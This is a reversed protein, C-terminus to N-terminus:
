EHEGGTSRIGAGMERRAVRAATGKPAAKAEGSGGCEFCPGPEFEDMTMPVHYSGGEGSGKCAACIRTDPVKPAAQASFAARAQWGVWKFNLAHRHEGYGDGDRLEAIGEPTFTFKTQANADAAYWAEFAAREDPMEVPQAPASALMRAAQRMTSRCLDDMVGGSSAFANLRRALEEADKRDEETNNTTM